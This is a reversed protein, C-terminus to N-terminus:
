QLLSLLSSRQGDRRRPSFYLVRSFYDRDSVLKEDAVGEISVGVPYRFM